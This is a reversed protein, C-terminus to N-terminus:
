TKKGNTRQDYRIPVNFNDQSTQNTSNSLANSSLPALSFIHNNNEDDNTNSSDCNLNDSLLSSQGALTYDGQNTFFSDISNTGSFDNLLPGEYVNLNSNSDACNLLSDNCNTLQNNLQNNSQRNLQNLNNLNNLNNMSNLNNLNSNISNQQTTATKIMASNNMKLPQNNIQRTGMYSRNVDDNPQYMTQQNGVFMNNSLYNAGQNNYGNAQLQGNQPQPQQPQVNLDGISLSGLNILDNPCADLDLHNFGNNATVTQTTNSTAKTWNTLPSLSQQIHQVNHEDQPSFRDCSSSANSATRTRFSQQHDPSNNLNRPGLLACNNSQAQSYLVSQQPQQLNNLQHYVPSSNLNQNTSQTHHNHLQNPHVQTTQHAAQVHPQNLQGSQILQNTSPSEPYRDLHDINESHSSCPSPTHELINQDLLNHSNGPLSSALVSSMARIDKRNRLGRKKKELTKTEM